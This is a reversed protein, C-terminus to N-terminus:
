NRIKRLQAENEQPFPEHYFAIQGSLVNKNKNLSSFGHHGSTQILLFLIITRRLKKSFRSDMFTKMQGWNNTIWKATTAEDTPFQASFHLTRLELWLASLVNLNNQCRGRCGSCRWLVVLTDKLLTSFGCYSVYTGVIVQCTIWPHGRDEGMTYGAQSGSDSLTAFVRCNKDTEWFNCQSTECLGTMVFTRVNPVDQAFNNSQTIKISNDQLSLQFLLRSRVNDQQRQLM